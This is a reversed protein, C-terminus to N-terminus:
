RFRFVEMNNYEYCKIENLLNKKAEKENAKREGYRILFTYSKENQTNVSLGRLVQIRDFSQWGALWVTLRVYVCRM